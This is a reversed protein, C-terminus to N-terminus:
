TIAASMDKDTSVSPGSCHINATSGRVSGFSKVARGYPQVCDCLPVHLEAICEQGNCGQLVAIKVDM